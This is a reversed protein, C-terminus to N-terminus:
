VRTIPFGLSLYTEVRVLDTSVRAEGPVFGHKNSRRFIESIKVLRYLFVSVCTCM